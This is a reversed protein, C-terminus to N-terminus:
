NLRFIHLGPVVNFNNILPFYISIFLFSKYNTIQETDSLLMLIKIWLYLDGTQHMNFINTCKRTQSRTYVNDLACPDNQINSPKCYKIQTDLCQNYHCFLM